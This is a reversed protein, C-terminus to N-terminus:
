RHNIYLIKCVNRTGAALRLWQPEQTTPPLEQPERIIITVMKCVSRTGAALQILGQPEQTTPPLEQAERIIIMVLKCVNRTGAALQILGQPEQTSPPLEQPETSTQFVSVPTLCSVTVGVCIFCIFFSKKCKRGYPLEDM